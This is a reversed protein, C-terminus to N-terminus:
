PVSRSLIRAAFSHGEPQAAHLVKGRTKGASFCEWVNGQTGRCEGRTGKLVASISANRALGNIKNIGALPM